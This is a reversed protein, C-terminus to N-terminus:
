RGEAKNIAEAITNHLAEFDARNDLTNDILAEGILTYASKLAEYMEPAASILLANKQSENFLIEEVEHYQSEKNFLVASNHWREIKAVYRDGVIYDGDVKWPGKTYNM